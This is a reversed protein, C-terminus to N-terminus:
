SLKEELDDLSAYGYLFATNEMIIRAMNGGNQLLEAVFRGYLDLTEDSYTGLEGRLYTEYSTNWPADEETRISRANSASRPYDQAFAEMWAVQIEVIAEIIQKKAAPIIPLDNKIENYGKPDNSEMMRGYKETILNWGKANAIRFDRIYSKLMEETWAFYQSKRMISFTNWDDQCDARGGVNKVQDFAEWELMVLTNVLEGKITPEQKERQPISKLVNGTHSDLYTDNGTTLGQRKMEAILIAVIQEIIEPIKEDGVHLEPIKEILRPIRTLYPLNEMGKHMWKYFPAYKRNLLYVLCMTHKMFEALSMTATVKDGRTLMRGYNYQGFQAILSAERAIKQTFVERPYYNLLGKRIRSFEGLDDRFVKGNTAAALQYDEVFLWQNQTVPIDSIGLLRDYFDGIRFVGVRKPAKESAYRTIGMYTKPLIDYEQQLVVGIEEYTQDTLWMCFGPGFDHDRSLEDDFGFCDSGEGVLGVAIVDEYASFKERIMPIGFERYYDECLDIGKKYEKIVNPLLKKQEQVQELNRKIVQYSNSKGTHKEIEDLAIKYYKEAEDLNGVLYQVEAMAAVAGSYHYDKEEEKNFIALAKELDEVAEQVRGLKVKSNALNTYTVATEIEMEPYQVIIALANGLSTCAGVYDELEQYLLSVNNYLSAYRMDNKEIKDEYLQFVQKYDELSEELKGAARYFNAINLLTTAFPLSGEMQLAKMLRLAEICFFEGKEYKGTERCYGIMENMLTIACDTEGIKLAEEIKGDLFSEIEEIQCNTFMQDLENLLKEINLM